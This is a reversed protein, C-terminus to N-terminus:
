PSLQKGETCTNSLTNFTISNFNFFYSIYGVCFFLLPKLIFNNFKNLSHKNFVLRGFIKQYLNFVTPPPKFPTELTKYDFLDISLNEKQVQQLQISISIHSCKSNYKGIGHQRYNEM